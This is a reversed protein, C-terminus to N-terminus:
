TPKNGAMKTSDVGFKPKKAKKALIFDNNFGSLNLSQCDFLLWLSLTKRGGDKGAILSDIDKAHFVERIM